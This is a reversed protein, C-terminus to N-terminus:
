DFRGYQSDAKSAEPDQITVGSHGPDGCTTTEAATTHSGETAAQTGKRKEKCKLQLSALVSGFLGKLVIPM